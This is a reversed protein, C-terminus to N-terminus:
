WFLGNGQVNVISAEHDGVDFLPVFQPFINLNGLLVFKGSM